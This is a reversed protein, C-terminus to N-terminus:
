FGDHDIPGSDLHYRERCLQCIITQRIWSIARSPRSLWRMAGVPYRGAVLGRVGIFLIYKNIKRIAERFQNASKVRPACSERPEYPGIGEDLSLQHRGLQLVAKSLADMRTRRMTEM